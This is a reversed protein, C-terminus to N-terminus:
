NNLEKARSNGNPRKYLSQKDTLNGILENIIHIGEKLDKFM